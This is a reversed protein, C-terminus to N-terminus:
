AGVEDRVADLSIKSHTRVFRCVVSLVRGHGTDVVKAETLEFAKDIGLVRRVEDETLERRTEEIQIKKM